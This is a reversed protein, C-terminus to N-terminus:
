GRVSACAKNMNHVIVAPFNLRGGDDGFRDIITCIGNFVKILLKIDEAVEEALAVSAGETEAALLLGVLEISGTIAKTVKDDIHLKTGNDIDIVLDAATSTLKGTSDFAMNSTSKDNHAGGRRHEHYLALSLGGGPESKLKSRSNPRGPIDVHYQSDESDFDLEYGNKEIKAGPYLSLFTAQDFRATM